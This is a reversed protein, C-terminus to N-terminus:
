AWYLDLVLLTGGPRLAGGMKRLTPALPLHHLTTISAVCDFREEPFSWCNAEALLYEVNPHGGSGTPM